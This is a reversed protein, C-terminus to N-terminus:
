GGPSTRNVSLWGAGVSEGGYISWGKRSQVMYYFGCSGATLIALLSLVPFPKKSGGTESTSAYNRVSVHNYITQKASAVTQPLIVRHFTHAQTRSSLRLIPLVRSPTPMPPPLIAPIPRTVRLFPTVVTRLSVSARSLRRHLSFTSPLPAAQLKQIQINSFVGAEVVDHVQCLLPKILDCFKV